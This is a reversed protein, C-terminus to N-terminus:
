PLHPWIKHLTQASRVREQLQHHRSEKSLLRLLVGLGARDIPGFRVGLYLWINRSDCTTITPICRPSRIGGWMSRRIYQVPKERWPIEHPFLVVSQIHDSDWTWQCQQQWISAQIVLCYTYSKTWLCRCINAIPNQLALILNCYGKFDTWYSYIAIFDIENCARIPGM